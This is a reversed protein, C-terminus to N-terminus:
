LKKFIPETQANHHDISLIVKLYVNKYWQLKNMNIAGHLYRLSKLTIICSLFNYYLFKQELTAVMFMCYQFVFILSHLPYLSLILVLFMNFPM